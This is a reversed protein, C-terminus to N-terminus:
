ARVLFPLIYFDVRLALFSWTQSWDAFNWLHFALRVHDSCRCSEWQLCNASWLFFFFELFYCSCLNKAHCWSAPCPIQMITVKFLMCGTKRLSRFLHKTFIGMWGHSQSASVCLTSTSVEHVAKDSTVHVM